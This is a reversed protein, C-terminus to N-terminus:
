RVRVTIRVRVRHERWRAKKHGRTKGKTRRKHTSSRAQKDHGTRTKGKGNEDKTVRKTRTKSQRIEHRVNDFRSLKFNANTCRMNKPESEDGGGGGGCSSGLLGLTTKASLQDADKMLLTNYVTLLLKRPM